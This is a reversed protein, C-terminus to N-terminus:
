SCRSLQSAASAHDDLQLADVLPVSLDPREIAGVQRDGVTRHHPQDARVPCPLGGGHKSM